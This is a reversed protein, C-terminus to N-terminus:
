FLFPISLHALTPSNMCFYSSQQESRQVPLSITECNPREKESWTRAWSADSFKLREAIDAIVHTCSLKVECTIMVCITQACLLPLVGCINQTVIGICYLYEALTIFMHVTHLHGPVSLSPSCPPRQSSLDPSGWASCLRNWGAGVLGVM